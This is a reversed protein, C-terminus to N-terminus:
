QSWRTWCVGLITLFSQWVELAVLNMWERIQDPTKWEVSPCFIDSVGGPAACITTCQRSKRHQSCRQDYFFLLLLSYKPFPFFSFLITIHSLGFVPPASPICLSLLFFVPCPSSLFIILPISTARLIFLLNHLPIKNEWGDTLLLSLWVVASRMENHIRHFEGMQNSMGASDVIWGSAEVFIDILIVQQSRQSFASKQTIRVHM